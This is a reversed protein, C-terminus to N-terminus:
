KWGGHMLALGQLLQPLRPPNLEVDKHGRCQISAPIWCWATMAQNGQIAGPEWQIRSNVRFSGERFSGQIGLGWDTGRGVSIHPSQLYYYSYYYYPLSFYVTLLTRGTVETSKIHSMGVEQIDSLLYINIRNLWVCCGHKINQLCQFYQSLM